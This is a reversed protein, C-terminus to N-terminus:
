IQTSKILIFFLGQHFTQIEKWAESAFIKIFTMFLSNEPFM